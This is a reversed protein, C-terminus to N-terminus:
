RPGADKKEREQAPAPKADLPANQRRWEELTVAQRPVDKEADVASRHFPRSSRSSMGRPERRAQQCRLPVSAAAPQHGFLLIPLFSWPSPRSWLARRCKPSQGFAKRHALFVM